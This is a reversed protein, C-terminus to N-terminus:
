TPTVTPKFSVGVGGPGHEAGASDYNPARWGRTPNCRERQVAPFNLTSRWASSIIPHRDVGHLPVFSSSARLNAKM